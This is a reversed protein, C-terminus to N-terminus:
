MVATFISVACPQAAPLKWEIHHQNNGKNVPCIERM